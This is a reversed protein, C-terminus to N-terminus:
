WSVQNQVIEGYLEPRRNRLTYNPHGRTVALLRPDLDQVVMEDRIREAQATQLVSGDPGFFIIAGPHHPQNPHDRPYTDVYGGIGAQDTYVAFCANERARMTYCSTYYDRIHRRAAAESEPTDDWQMERAAHPMLIVDAGRLAVTRALESFWNDYCIVVGVKCKGIDFVPIERGGKYFLV